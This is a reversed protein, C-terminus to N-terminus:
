YELAKVQGRGAQKAAYLQRDAGQILGALEEGTLPTTVAVGLSVSVVGGPLTTKQHPIALALVAHLLAEAKAIAGELGTEPLICAFEEGGYRALLDHSRSLCAKLCTAVEVLCTDGGQHGYTDNYQKFFDIDIMILAMPQGLRACRRWEAELALDFQRRNAVGTLGDVLAHTRLLDAQYKLTLHTKVRARMINASASRAIFDVAGAALGAEEEATDNHATVFIVPIDSTRPSSKLQRCVAYGDMGPMMVDLLILDPLQTQCFSLAAAGSTASFLEYGTQFIQFLLHIQVPQDDVLLLRPLPNVPEPLTDTLTM